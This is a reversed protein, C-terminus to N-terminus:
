DLPSIWLDLRRSDGVPASSSGCKVLENHLENHKWVVARFFSRFGEDRVPM